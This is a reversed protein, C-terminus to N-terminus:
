WSVRQWSCRQESGCPEVANCRLRFDVKWSSHYKEAYRALGAGSIKGDDSYKVSGLTLAPKFPAGTIHSVKDEMNVLSLVADLNTLSAITRNNYKGDTNTLGELVSLESCHGLSTRLCKSNWLNVGAENKLDRIETIMRLLSKVIDPMLM